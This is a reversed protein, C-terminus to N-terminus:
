VFYGGLWLCVRVLEEFNARKRNKKYRKLAEVIKAWDRVGFTEVIIKASDSNGQFLFQCIATVNAVRREVSAAEFDVIFPKGSADVLLHKPAKSLEGHDLGAEDLRWCQELVDELVRRVVDMEKHNKLWNGLLDGDVLQMLLFDRSVALFKPGVGVSNAKKLLEAEHALSERDADIRRMKLAYRQGGVYAVVVVGVYGKGQVHVTFASAQGSFELAEVDLGALELIRSKAEAESPKPYCVVSIYPEANLSELPVVPPSKM